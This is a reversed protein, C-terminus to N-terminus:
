RRRRRALLGLGLAVLAGMGNAGRDSTCSCGSDEDDETTGSSSGGDGTGEASGGGVTASAGTASASASASASDDSTSGPDPDGTSSDGGGTSEGPTGTSEDGGATGDCGGTSGGSAGSLTIDACSYYEDDNPNIQTLRLTCAECDIDPLQVDISTPMGEADSVDAALVYQRFGTDDAAAFDITLSGGHPQGVAWSVTITEGATFPTPAGAPIGGCPGVTLGNDGSRPVPDTMAVHASAISPLLLLAFTLSAAPLKM